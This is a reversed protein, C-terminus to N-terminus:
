LERRIVLSRQQEEGREELGMRRGVRLMVTGKLGISVYCAAGM